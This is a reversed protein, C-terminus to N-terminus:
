IGGRHVLEGNEGIGNRSARLAPKGLAPRLDDETRAV